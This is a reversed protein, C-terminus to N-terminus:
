HHCILSFQIYIAYLETCDMIQQEMSSPRERAMTSVFISPVIGPQQAVDQKTNRDIWVM